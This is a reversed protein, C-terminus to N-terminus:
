SPKQTSNRGYFTKHIGLAIATGVGYAVLDYPDFRGSGIGPVNLFNPGQDKVLYEGAEFAVSIATALFINKRSRFFEIKPNIYGVFGSTALWWIPIGLVDHGYSSLLEIQHLRYNRAFQDIGVLGLTLTMHGFSPHSPNVPEKNVHVSNPSPNLEGQRSDARRQRNRERRRQSGSREPM